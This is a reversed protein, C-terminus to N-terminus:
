VQMQGMSRAVHDMNRAIEERRAPVEAELMQFVYRQAKTPKAVSTNYFSSLTILIDLLESVQLPECEKVDLMLAPVDQGVHQLSLRRDECLAVRGSRDNKPDLRFDCAEFTVIKDAFNAKLFTHAKEHLDGIAEIITTNGNLPRGNIETLLVGERLINIFVNININPHDKHTYKKDFDFDGIRAVVCAPVKENTIGEMGALTFIRDPLDTAPCHTEACVPCLWKATSNDTTLDWGQGALYKPIGDRNMQSWELEKQKQKEVFDYGITLWWYCHRLPAALMEGSKIRKTLEEIIRQPQLQKVREPDCRHAYIMAAGSEKGTQPTLQSIWDSAKKVRIQEAENFEKKMEDPTKMNTEGAKEADRALGDM